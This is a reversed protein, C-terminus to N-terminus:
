KSQLAEWEDRLREIEAPPPPRGGYRVEDFALTIRGPTPAAFASDLRPSLELPTEAVRREIGRRGAATLVEFYLRRMAETQDRRHSGPRLRGVLGGLLSGLDAGLRGEQYTSERVPGIDPPKKFRRFVSYTVGVILAIVFTTVASRFTTKLWGPLGGDDDAQDPPPTQEGQVIEEPERPEAGLAEGLWKVVRIAYETVKAFPWIVWAAVTAIAAGLPKAVSVLADNATNLDILVFLLAFAAMLLVAGGVALIWTAGFSRGYEGQTRAAHALGIALLGLTVYPVAIGGVAAPADVGSQLLEVTAVVVLGVAFSIVVSDFSVPQQGRLVGRIWFAWLLPIGIIAASRDRTVAATHYFLDNAWEFDWFRWDDFFDVRVIAYFLVLSLLLGWVRLVGLSLDSSQLIRSIAFSLMVVAGAGFPSPNGGEGVLAVLFAVLAYVWFTEMFLLAARTAPGQWTM